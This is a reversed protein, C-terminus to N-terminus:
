TSSPLERLHLSALIKRLGGEVHCGAKFISVAIPVLYARLKSKSTMEMQLHVSPKKKGRLHKPITHTQRGKLPWRWPSEHIFVHHMTKQLMPDTPYAAQFLYKLLYPMIFLYLYAVQHGTHMTLGAMFALM